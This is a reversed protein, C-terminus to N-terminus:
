IKNPAAFQYTLCSMLEEVYEKKQSAKNMVTQIATQFAIDDSIYGSDSSRIMAAMAWNELARYGCVGDEIGKERSAKSINAIVEIMRDLMTTDPFKLREMIRQKMVESSPNEIRYVLSMRDLVSQNLNSCGEYEDNSTFILTCDPHKKIM